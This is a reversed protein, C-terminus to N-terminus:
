KVQNFHIEILEGQDSIAIIPKGLIRMSENETDFCAVRKALGSSDYRLVENKKESEFVIFKVGNRIESEFKIETAAIDNVIGNM